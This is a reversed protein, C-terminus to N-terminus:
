TIPLLIIALKEEEVSSEITTYFKINASSASENIKREIGGLLL